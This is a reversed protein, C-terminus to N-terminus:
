RMERAVEKLVFKRRNAVQRKFSEIDSDFQAVAHPGVEPRLKEKLSDIVPNFRQETFTTECLEKLRALFVKRFQPNALLPGSFWGGPRWWMTGGFPGGGGFIFGGGRAQRDGNMGMTIPMEYWDYNASAGDYDGWTKDEDWPIVEWKSDPRTDRYVYHNNFFGDWNQICMNVAYYNVLNTVNFNEQIYKWQAEGTLRNLERVTKSIDSHGTTPNTKKEHAAVVDREFWRIKYLNGENNRGTRALFTKNPQEVMLMFGHSRGNVELRVHGSNQILMGARRFLEYSLHEALIWRPSGEAILNIGSMGELLQDKLFHVKYGGSRGRVQAFDFFQIPGGTPVYVVASSGVEPLHDRAPAMKNGGGSSARATNIVTMIPIKARMPPTFVFSSFAPRPDNPSPHIHDVGSTTTAVVFRLLTGTPQPPLSAEYVGDRASGFVRKLPAQNTAIGRGNSSYTYFELTAKTLDQASRITTTITIPKNPAPLREWKVDVVGPVPHESASDNARGPTGERGKRSARNSPAWNYPDDAPATACIRELSSAYGDPGLPWPAKDSFTFREVLQGQANVLELKEGSRKLKGTLNGIVPFSNGHTRQLETMDRSLVLFAGAPIKTNAPFDFKVGKLKWGSLDAESDGANLLEIYQLRDDDNAPHYQIENIVVQAGAYSLPLCALCLSVVAVSRVLYSKMFACRNDAWGM